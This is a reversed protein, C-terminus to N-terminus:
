DHVYPNSPVRYEAANRAVQGELARKTYPFLDSLEEYTHGWRTLTKITRAWTAMDHRQYGDPLKGLKERRIRDAQSRSLGFADAWKEGNWFPITHTRNILEVRQEHETVHPYKNHTYHPNAYVTKNTSNYRKCAWSGAFHLIELYQNPNLNLRQTDRVDKMCFTQKFKGLRDFTAQFAHLAEIPSQKRYGYPMLAHFIGHKDAWTGSQILQDKQTRSRWEVQSM